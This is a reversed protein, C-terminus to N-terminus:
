ATAGGLQSDCIERYIPCTELLQEHTGAGVVCGRDFVYIRDCRMATAARQTVIIQTKGALRRNLALRLRSETLYDLASFSDDFVYVAADKILTRAINVRQKQGGSINTGSQTLAYALGEEHADLFDQLQAIAVAECVAEDSAGPNGMRINEAVTGEFIMSKQLAVSLNDRVTERSLTEYARGGLSIQGGTPAYFDLLLKVVTTKGSGTGGIIAAIEGPEVCISVDSLAPAEAGPYRFTVHDFRVSGGLRETDGEAAPQGPLHLVEAIRRVSVRLQPLWAFTWSLVLLGNMILAVYQITAIVDGARLAPEVQMRVAGIYLMAVTCINLLLLSIPNILGMRVNAKIINKAMEETAFAVRGHEHAEKDFARIVRIGSLRERVIKNQLDIYRDSNEWLQDLKRTVLYVILVVAPALVILVLSLLWDSSFALAAGGLFLVPVTVVAYVFSNAANQMAFVDDTSRTLLSATGIGAYEEFTLSNIKEFVAKQLSETFGATVHANLRTTWLSSLLALVALGLMMAGRTLIYAMNQERIGVNVIDSMLYPMFLGALTAVMYLAGILILKGRYPHLYSFITKM